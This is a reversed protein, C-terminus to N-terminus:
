GEIAKVLERLCSTMITSAKNETGRLMFYQEGQHRKTNTGDDPFYLYGYSSKTKVTIELNANIHTFPKGVKAARKKGKWKRGSSPLLVTIGDVIEEAGENWLVENIIQEGREPLQAVKDFLEKVSSDDLNFEVSM